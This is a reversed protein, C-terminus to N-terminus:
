FFAPIAMNLESFASERALFIILSLSLFTYYIYAHMIIFPDSRCSSMVTRLPKGQPEAPLSGAQLTPPRPKIGPHPIDGPSPFPEWELIRAQLIEHVLYDKPHCLTPCSQAVKVKM